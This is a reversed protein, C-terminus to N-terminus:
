YQHYLMCIQYQKVRNVNEYKDRQNVLEIHSRDKKEKQKIIPTKAMSFSKAKKISFEM